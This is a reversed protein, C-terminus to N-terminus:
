IEGRRLPTRGVREKGNGKRGRTATFVCPSFETFELRKATNNTSIREDLKRAERGGKKEGKRFYRKRGDLERKAAIERERGEGEGGRNSIRCRRSCDRVIEASLSAAAERRGTREAKEGVYGTDREAFIAVDFNVPPGPPGYHLGPILARVPRRANGRVNNDAM